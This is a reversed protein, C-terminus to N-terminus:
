ALLKTVPVGLAKALRRLAPLAAKPQHSQPRKQKSGNRALLGSAAGFRELDGGNRGIITYRQSSDVEVKPPRRDFTLSPLRM